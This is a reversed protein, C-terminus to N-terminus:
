PKGPKWTATPFGTINLEYIINLLTIMMKMLDVPNLALVTPRTATTFPCDAM